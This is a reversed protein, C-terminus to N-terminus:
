AAKISTSSWPRDVSSEQSEPSGTLAAVAFFCLLALGNAASWPPPLVFLFHMPPVFYAASAIRQPRTGFVLFYIAPLLIVALDYSYSNPSILLSAIIALSYGAEFTVKRATHVFLLVVGVTLIPWLWMVGFSDAIGRCIPMEYLDMLATSVLRPYEWIASPGVLAFSLAVLCAASVLYGMLVPKTKRLLLLVPLMLFLSPKQLTVALTAGAAFRAGRRYLWLALSLVLLNVVGDQEWGFNIALSFFLPSLATVQWPVALAGPLILLLVILTMLRAALWAYPFDHSLLPRFALAYFPARLYPAWRPAQMSQQQEYNYLGPGVLKAGTEYMIGDLQGIGLSWATYLCLLSTLVVILATGVM